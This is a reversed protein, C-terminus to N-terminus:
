KKISGTPLFTKFLISFMVNLAFHLALWAFYKKEPGVLGQAVKSLSPYHCVLMKKLEAISSDYLKANLSWM